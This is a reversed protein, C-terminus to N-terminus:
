ARQGHKQQPQDREGARAEDEEEDGDGQDARPRGLVRLTREAALIGAGDHDVLDRAHRQRDERQRERQRHERDGERQEADEVDHLRKRRPLRLRQAAAGADHHVIEDGAEVREGHHHDQAREDSPRSPPAAMGIERPQPGATRPSSMVPPTRTIPTAASAADPPSGVAGTCAASTAAPTGTSPRTSTSSSSAAISRASPGSAGSATTTAPGPPDAPSVTRRTRARSEPVRSTSLSRM